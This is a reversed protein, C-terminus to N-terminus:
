TISPTARRRNASTAYVYRALREEVGEWDLVSTPDSHLRAHLHRLMRRLQHHHTDCWRTFPVDGRVDGREVIASALSPADRVDSEPSTVNFETHGDGGRSIWLTAM